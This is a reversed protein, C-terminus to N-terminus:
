LLKIQNHNVLLKTLQNVSLRVNKKGKHFQYHVIGLKDTMSKVVRRQSLNKVTDLRVINCKDTIAFLREFGPVWMVCNHGEFVYPLEKVVDRPSIIELLQPMTFYTLIGNRNVNFKVTGSKTQGPLLLKQKFERLRNDKGLHKRSLSLVHGDDSIAYMGDYDPIYMVWTKDFQRFPFVHNKNLIYNTTM